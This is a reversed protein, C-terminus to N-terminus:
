PRRKSNELEKYSITNSPEPFEYKDSRLDANKLTNNSTVWTNRTM